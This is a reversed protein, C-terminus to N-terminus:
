IWVDARADSCCFPNDPSPCRGSLLNRRAGSKCIATSRLNRPKRSVSFQFTSIALLRLRQANNKIKRDLVAALDMQSQSKLGCAPLPRVSDSNMNRAKLHGYFKLLLNQSVKDDFPHNESLFAFPITGGMSHGLLYVKPQNTEHLVKDLVTPLDREAM